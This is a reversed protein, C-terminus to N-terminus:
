TYYFKRINLIVFTYVAKHSLEELETTNLKRHKPVPVVFTNDTTAASSNSLTNSSEFVPRQRKKKPKSQGISTGISNVSLAEEFSMGSMSDMSKCATGTNRKSNTTTVTSMALEPNKELLETQTYYEDVLQKWYLILKDARSRLKVDTTLAKLRNVVKGIGSEKLAM